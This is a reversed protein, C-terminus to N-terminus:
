WMDHKEFDDKQTREKKPEIEESFETQYQKSIVTVNNETTRHEKIYQHIFPECLALFFAAFASVGIIQLNNGFLFAAIAWLMFFALPFDAITAVTNGFNRFILLDGILYSVGTIVVSTWFLNILSANYFIGFISYVVIATVIFKIGLTKWHIM